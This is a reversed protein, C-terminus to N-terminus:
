VEGVRSDGDLIDEGFDEIREGKVELLIGVSAFM